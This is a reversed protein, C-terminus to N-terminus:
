ARGFNRGFVQKNKLLHEGFIDWFRGFILFFPDQSDGPLEGPDGQPEFPTGTLFTGGFLLEEGGRAGM